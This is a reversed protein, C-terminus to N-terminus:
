RIPELKLAIILNVSCSKASQILSFFFAGLPSYTDFSGFNVLGFLGRFYTLGHAEINVNTNNQNSTMQVRKSTQSKPQFNQIKNPINTLGVAHARM